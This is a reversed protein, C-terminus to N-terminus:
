TWLSRDRFSRYPRGFKKRLSISPFIESSSASATKRRTWAQTRTIMVLITTTKLDTATTDSEGERLAIGTEATTTDSETDKREGGGTERQGTKTETGDRVSSPTVEGGTQAMDGMATAADLDKTTGWPTVPLHM